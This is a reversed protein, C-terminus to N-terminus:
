AAVEFEPLEAVLVVLLEQAIARVVHYRHHDVVLEQCLIFIVLRYQDLAVVLYERLLEVRVGIHLLLAIHSELSVCVLRVIVEAPGARVPDKPIAHRSVSTCWLCCRGLPEQYTIALM